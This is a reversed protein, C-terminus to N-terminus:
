PNRRISVHTGDGLKTHQFNGVLPTLIDSVRDSRWQHGFETPFDWQMLRFIKNGGKFELDTELFAKMLFAFSRNATHGPINRIGPTIMASVEMLNGDDSETRVNYLNCTGLLVDRKNNQDLTYVGFNVVGLDDDYTPSDRRCLFVDPKDALEIARFIVRRLIKIAQHRRDRTMDRFHVLRIDAGRPNTITFPKIAPLKM